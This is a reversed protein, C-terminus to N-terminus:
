ITLLNKINQPLNVLDEPRDIDALIPLNFVSLNHKEGISITQKYVANTGWKINNFIGKQPTKLGILYYGGDEAKGLVLDHNNLALFAQKLIDITLSQCDIGIVVVPMKTTKFSSEIASFMKEGLDKGQQPIFQWQKGLWQEMLTQNGGTYYIKITIEEELKEVIKLINETMLKQIQTAKSAGVAPILRTKTKGKEPYRTFIALTKKSM